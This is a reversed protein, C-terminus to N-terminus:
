MLGQFKIGEVLDIPDKGKRILEDSTNRIFSNLNEKGWMMLWADLRSMEPGSGNYIKNGFQDRVYWQRPPVEMLAPMQGAPPSYWREGHCVAVEDQEREQAPLPPLPPVTPPLAAPPTTTNAPQPAPTQPVFRGGTHDTAFVMHCHNVSFNRNASFVYITLRKPPLMDPHM